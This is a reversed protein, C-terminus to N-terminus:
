IYIYIYIYIWITGLAFILYYLICGKAEVGWLMGAIFRRRVPGTPLEVSPFVWHCLRYQM